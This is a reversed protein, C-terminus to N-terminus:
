PYVKVAVDADGGRRLGDLFAGFYALREHIPEGFPQAVRKNMRVFRRINEHVCYGGQAHARSADVVCLEPHANLASAHQRCPAGLGVSETPGVHALQLLHFLQDHLILHLRARRTRVNFLHERVFKSPADLQSISFPGLRCLFSRANFFHDPRRSPFCIDTWCLKSITPTSPTRLTYPSPGCASSANREIENETSVPCNTEMKPGLPQPFLVSRLM